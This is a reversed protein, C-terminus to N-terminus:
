GWQQLRPAQATCHLLSLRASRTTSGEVISYEVSLHYLLSDEM